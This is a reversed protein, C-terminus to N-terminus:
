EVGRLKGEQSEFLLEGGSVSSSSYKRRKQSGEDLGEERLGNKEKKLNYDEEENM